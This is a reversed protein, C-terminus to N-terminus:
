PGASDDFANNQLISKVIFRNPQKKVVDPILYRLIGVPKLGFVVMM